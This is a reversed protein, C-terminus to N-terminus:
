RTKRKRPPYDQEAEWDYVRNVDMFQSGNCGDDLTEVLKCGLWVAAGVGVYSLLLTITSM